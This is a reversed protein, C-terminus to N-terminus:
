QALKKGSRTQRGPLSMATKIWKGLNGVTKNAKEREPPIANNVKKPATVPNSPTNHIVKNSDTGNAGTTANGTRTEAQKTQEEEENESASSEEEEELGSESSSETREKNAKPRPPSNPKFVHPVEVKEDETAPLQKKELPAGIGVQDHKIHRFLRSPREGFPKLFFTTTTLRWPYPGAKFIDRIVVLNRFIKEIKYLTNVYKVGTTTKGVNLRRFYVYQGAQYPSTVGRGGKALDGFRQKQYAKIAKQNAEHTEKTREYYEAPVVEGQIKHYEVPFRITPRGTHVEDPTLPSPLGANPSNNLLYTCLPVLVPWDKTNHTMQLCCLLYKVSGNSREVLSQSTSSYALGTKISVSWEECLRRIETNRLLSIQNDGNIWRPPGHTSFIQLLTRAVTRSTMKTTPVAFCKRSYRDIVNLVYKYNGYPEMYFFDVDLMQMPYQPIFLHNNPNRPRTSLRLLSCVHCGAAFEEVLTKAKPIFFMRRVVAYMRKAGHHAFHLSALIHAILREDKAPIVILSNGAAEWPKDVKRRRMLMGHQVRYTNGLSAGREAERIKKFCSADSRQSKIITEWSVERAAMSVVHVNNQPEMLPLMLETLARGEMSNDLAMINEIEYDADHLEELVHFPEVKDIDTKDRLFPLVCENNKNVFTNLEELTTVQGEELKPMHVEEKSITAYDRLKLHPKHKHFFHSLVDPVNNDEGRTHKIIIKIPLSMLNMALRALRSNSTRAGSLIYVISTADTLIARERVAELERRFKALGLVVALCEKVVITYRQRITKSFKISHFNNIRVKGDIYQLLAFGCGTESSDCELFLPFNYNIHHLRYNKAVTQKLMNFAKEMDPTWPINGKGKSLQDTLCSVMSQYHPIHGSLYTYFGIVAMLNAVTKPRPMNESISCKKKTIQRSEKNVDEGLVELTANKTFFNIKSLSVKFGIEELRKFLDKLTEFMEEETHCCVYVDDMYYAIRDSHIPKIAYTDGNKVKPNLVRHMAYQLYTYQQEKCVLWLMINIRIRPLNSVYVTYKISNKRLFSVIPAKLFLFEFNGVLNFFKHCNHRVFLVHDLWSTTKKRLSSM